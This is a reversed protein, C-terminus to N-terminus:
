TSLVLSKALAVKTKLSSEEAIQYQKADRMLKEVPYERTYGYGGFVQVADTTVRMAVDQAFAKATLAYSSADEGQDLLYAAQWTLLRAAEIERAMDALMFAVGQHQSIPRGFTKREKSYGIAHHMASRAVGTAGAAVMTCISPWTKSKILEGQGLTGVLHDDSLQVDKFVARRTVRAKRGIAYVKDGFTLGEIEAPVVFSSKQGKAPDKATVFYWSANGGNVLNHSGEIVYKDDRVRLTLDDGATDFTSYGAILPEQMLRELCAEKVERNGFQILPLQAFTTAEIVGSIGACGAALEELILCAELHGLGLGGHRDPIQFNVLGTEWASVFIETPFEGSEEFHAARPRIECETFDRAVRRFQEKEETLKIQAM